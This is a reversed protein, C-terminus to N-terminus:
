ERRVKNLNAQFITYAEALEKYFDDEHVPPVQEFVVEETPSNEIKEVVLETPQEVKELVIQESPTHDAVREEVEEYSCNMQWRVVSTGDEVSQAIEAVQLLVEGRARKALDIELPLAYEFYSDAEGVDLQDIFVGETAQGEGPTFEVYAAIHYIGTLRISEKLEEEHWQPTIRVSKMNAPIGLEVPFSFREEMQWTSVVVGDGGQWVTHM